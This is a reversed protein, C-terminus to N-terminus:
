KMSFQGSRQGYWDSMRRIGEELGIWPELGLETRARVISPVYRQVKAENKATRGITIGPKAGCTREVTKALDLISVSQDSGVNYPRLSVGKILVTWLWIAMDAAYLYSRLPTGDGEIRIPGGMRADRVFNGVAFNADLPLYPGVFAFLRAILVALGSDAARICLSESKRKARAYATGFKGAATYDEDVKELDSPQEGYVAGSSTFLLRRTGHTRAMELVRRLGEVNVESNEYAAAAHIVYHFERAPFRFATLDGSLIELCSSGALEANKARFAKPDRTLVSMRANLKFRENAWVFSELLWSGVFGTGGTIFIHSGALDEWIAGARALVHQRDLEMEHAM